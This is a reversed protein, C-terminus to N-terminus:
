GNSDVTVADVRMDSNGWVDIASTGIRYPGSPVLNYHLDLRGSAPVSLPNQPVPTWAGSTLDVHYLAPTFTWGPRLREVISRGSADTIVVHDAAADRQSFLISAGYDDGEISLVGNMANVADAGASIWRMVFGYSVTAGDGLTTVGRDWDFRYRVRPDIPGRAIDGFAMLNEGDAARFVQVLGEAVDTDTVVFRIQVSDADSGVTTEPLPGQVDSREVLTQLMTGSGSVGAWATGRYASLRAPDVKYDNALASETHLGAQGGRLSGLSRGIVLGDLATRAAAARSRVLPDSRLDALRDLILGLDRLQPRDDGREIDQWYGPTAFYGARAVETWSISQSSQMERQMGAYAQQFRPWRTLDIAAHARTMDEPAGTSLAVHHRHWAMVEEGALDRASSASSDNINQLTARYDWGAGYDIEACAVFTNALGAVEQVVEAGMMLCTDFGLIELRGTVGAATMGSRIAQTAAASAMGPKAAPPGDQLDGGYGEKWSGGHDWLVVAYREAPHDRFAKTVAAQLVAPDDLDREPESALLQPAAGSGRVRYWEAGTPFPAGRRVSTTLDKEVVTGANWDAYVVVQLHDELGAQSMELMDTVLENTLNHDGHGYVFVTWTKQPAGCGALLALSGALALTAVTAISTHTRM